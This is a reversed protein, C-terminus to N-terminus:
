EKVKQITYQVLKLYHEHRMDDRRSKSSFVHSTACRVITKFQFIFIQRITVSIDANFAAQVLYTLVVFHVHGRLIQPKFQHVLNQLTTLIGKSCQRFNTCYEGGCALLNEDGNSINMNPETRNVPGKQRVGFRVETRNPRHSRVGFRVPNPTRVGSREPFRRTAQRAPLDYFDTINTVQFPFIGFIKLKTQASPDEPAVQSLPMAIPAHSDISTFCHFQIFHKYYRYYIILINNLHNYITLKWWFPLIYRIYTMHAPRPTRANSGPEFANLHTRSFQARQRVGFRVQTRNPREPTRNPESFRTHVDRTRFQELSLIRPTPGKYVWPAQQCGLHEQISDM